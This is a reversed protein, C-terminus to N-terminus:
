MAGKTLEIVNEMLSLVTMTGTTNVRDGVYKADSKKMEEIDYDTYQKGDKVSIGVGIITADKKIWDSKILGEKGVCSVVIDAENIINEMFTEKATSNLCTTNAGQQILLNTLMLGVHKSRGLVVANKGKLEVNYHKLLNMVGKPTCSILKENKDFCKGYNYSLFVDADKNDDLYKIINDYNLHKYIPSQLIIAHVNKRNNLAQIYNILENETVDEKFKVVNAEIGIEEAIKVKNKIYNESAKCNSANLIVLNPKIYMNKVIEKLEKIKEIKYEKANIITPM